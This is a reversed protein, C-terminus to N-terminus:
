RFHMALAHNKKNFKTNKRGGAVGRGGRDSEQPVYRRVRLKNYKQIYM